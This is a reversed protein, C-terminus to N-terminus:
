IDESWRKLHSTIAQNNSSLTDQGTQTECNGELGIRTWRIKLLQMQRSLMLMGRIGWLLSANVVEYSSSVVHDFRSQKLLGWSLNQGEPKATTMM